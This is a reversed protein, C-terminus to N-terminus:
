GPSADESTNDPSLSSALEDIDTGQYMPVNRRYAARAIMHAAVPTTIFLFLIIVIIEMSTWFASFHVAVGLLMLVAGFASGKAAAHMRTYFDPFRALGLAAILFFSAGGILLVITIIEKM